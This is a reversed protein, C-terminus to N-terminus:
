VITEDSADMAELATNSEEALTRIGDFVKAVAALNIAENQIFFEMAKCFANSHRIVANHHERVGAKAIAQVNQGSIRPRIRTLRSLVRQFKPNFVKVINYDDGDVIRYHGTNAITRCASRWDSEMKLPGGHNIWRLTVLDCSQLVDGPVFDGVVNITHNDITMLM